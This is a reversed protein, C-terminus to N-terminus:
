VSVFAFVKGVPIISSLHGRKKGASLESHYVMGVRGSLTGATNLATPWVMVESCTIISASENWKVKGLQM